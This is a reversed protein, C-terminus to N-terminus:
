ERKNSIAASRAMMEDFEEDTFADSNESYKNILETLRADEKVKRSFEKFTM